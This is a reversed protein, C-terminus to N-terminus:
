VRGSRGVDKRVTAGSRGYLIKTNRVGPLKKRAKAAADKKDDHAAKKKKGNVLYIISTHDRNFLGGLAPYSWGTVERFLRVVERRANVVHRFRSVGIVEAVTTGYKDVIAETKDTLEFQAMVRYFDSM